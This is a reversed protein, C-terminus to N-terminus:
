SSKKICIFVFVIGFNFSGERIMIMLVTVAIRDAVIAGRSTTSKRLSEIDRLPFTFITKKWHYILSWIKFVFNAM